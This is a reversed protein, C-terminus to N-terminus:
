RCALSRSFREADDTQPALAREYRVMAQDYDGKAFHENGSRDLAAITRTLKNQFTEEDDLLEEEEPEDVVVVGGDDAGDNMM